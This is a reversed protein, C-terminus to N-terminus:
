ISILDCKLYSHTAEIRMQFVTSRVLVREGRDELVEMIDRAEDENEPHAFKLLQGAEIDRGILWRTTVQENM